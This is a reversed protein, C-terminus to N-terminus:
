QARREPARHWAANELAVEVLVRPSTWAADPSGYAVTALARFAEEREERYPVFLWPAIRLALAERLRRARHNERASM